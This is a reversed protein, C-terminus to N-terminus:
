LMNRITGSRMENMAKMVSSLMNFMQNTKQDVNQFATSTMLRNNRVESRVSQLKRIAKNLESLAQKREKAPFRVKGGTGVATNKRAKRKTKKM